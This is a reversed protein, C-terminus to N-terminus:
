CTKGATLGVKAIPYHSGEPTTFMSVVEIAPNAVIDEYDFTATVPATLAKVEALREPNIECM